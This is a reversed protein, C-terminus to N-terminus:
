LNRTGLVSQLNLVRINITPSHGAHSEFEVHGFDDKPAIKSVRVVNVEKAGGAHHKTVQIFGEMHAFVDREEPHANGKQRKVRIRM